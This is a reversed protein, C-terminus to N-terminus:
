SRLENQALKNRLDKLADVVKPDFNLKSLKGNVSPTKELKLEEDGNGHSRKLESILTKCSWIYAGTGHAVDQQCLDSTVVWVTQCGDEKLAAVEKEIWSDACTKGSFVIDIGLVLLLLNYYDYSLIYGYFTEKRTPLGSMLADFVVVVKVEQITSFAILEEILTQRAIDLRGGLFHTKLKVWYGCVNYGDVLMVPLATEIEQHTNNLSLTPDQYSETEEPLDEKEVKKKRYSTAPKAVGKNKRFEKWLKLVQLNQKVNTTIRPPPPQSGEMPFVLSNIESGHVLRPRSLAQYIHRLNITANPPTQNQGLVKPSTSQRKNSSKKAVIRYSSSRSSCYGYVGGGGGCRSAFVSSSAAVSSIGKM